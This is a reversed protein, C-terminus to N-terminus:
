ASFKILEILQLQIRKLQINCPLSHIGQSHLVPKQQGRNSKKKGTMHRSSRDLKSCKVVVERFSDKFSNKM